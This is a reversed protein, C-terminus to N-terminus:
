ISSTCSTQHADCRLCRPQQKRQTLRVRGPLCARLAAGPRTAAVVSAFAADIGDDAFRTGSHANNVIFLPVGADLGNRVGYDPLLPNEERCFVAVREGHAALGHATTQTYIESGANYSPPYGHNVLLVSRAAAAPSYTRRPSAAAGLLRPVRRCPQM